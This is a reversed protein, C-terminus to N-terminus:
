REYGGRAGLRDAASREQPDRDRPGPKGDSSGLGPAQRDGTLRPPLRDHAIGKVFCKLTQASGPGFHGATNCGIVSRHSGLRQGSQSAVVDNDRPRLSVALLSLAIGGEVSRAPKSWRMRTPSTLSTMLWAAGVEHMWTGISSTLSAIWLARFLPRHMLAWASSYSVAQATIADDADAAIEGSAEIGPGKVRELAGIGCIGTVRNLRTKAQVYDNAAWDRSEGALRTGRSPTNREDLALPSM